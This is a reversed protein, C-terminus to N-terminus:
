GKVAGAALGKVVFRQGIFYLVTIPISALIAGAMLQGWIYQDGVVMMSLKIPVTMTTQDSTFVLALLFENWALTFSFIASAVLGPASLPLLIRFLAGIKTCGDVMAHEELEPPISRFYGMLMWTCFPVTFSLYTVMLSQLTNGLGLATVIAYLPVFLMATPLVYKFLIFRGIAHRGRYRYRVISFAAFASVIVTVATTTLGVVLSNRINILLGERQIVRVFNEITPRQPFYSFDEYLEKNTKIAT